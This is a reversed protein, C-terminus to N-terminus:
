REREVEGVGRERGGEDAGAHAVGVDLREVQPLVHVERGGAAVERLGLFAEAGVELEAERPLALPGVAVVNEGGEVAGAEAGADGEAGGDEAGLVLEDPGVERGVGDERGEAEPLEVEVAAGR